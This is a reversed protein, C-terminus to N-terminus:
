NVGLARLGSPLGVVQAVKKSARSAAARTSTRGSPAFSLTAQKATTAKKAPAVKKKGRGKAPAKKAPATAKKAPARAKKKPAPDSELEEFDSGGADVDMMMSDASADSEDNTAKGKGHNQIAHIDDKDVFTEIADSMGSEGLLQLEQAALYERVLTQVRVKSLKEANSLEPDNISLEPQDAIVKGGRKAAAKARHFVLVDRPNALRGQFEQGFRVPNQMESVGTTDVKLRVIPLMRPVEEEGEEVAGINREDWLANAKEILENVRTKLFKTIAMRDNLDLNEDDAVETLVLEDLVFPRVTRLPIPTLEFEKGQIKLLAVHKEISEGDALSTAVSSGPQTVYYKKGAVPEPMIRCDHEHGWVVLDVSDDFMGEPVSQQPGHAVRNQHLLLINFWDDKDRPMYMRVRNSRLEFHMRQDKVNGVGYLGLRTNGKRMLVPKIAIGAKQAEADDLPLDIKGMYNILGSVSLMDLACLAGEPGAGQPDDHNGHISFVPIAVNFNPDEYNIAPFSYGPPKGDNPDSLLEVQIPRDGLTYERLLAMVQYLCDRTPRNEHFLDGALLIFDVDHKVALQLIERFTNISDQGRIPDRELYGIHNDTALM